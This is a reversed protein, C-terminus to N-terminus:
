LPQLTTSVEDTLNVTNQLAATRLVGVRPM